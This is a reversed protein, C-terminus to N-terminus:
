IMWGIQLAQKSRRTDARMFMHYLTILDLIGTIDSWHLQRSSEYIRSDHSPAPPAISQEIRSAERM